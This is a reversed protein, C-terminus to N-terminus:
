AHHCSSTTVAPARRWRPYANTVAVKVLPALTRSSAPMASEHTVQSSRDASADLTCWGQPVSGSAIGLGALPLPISAFVFPISANCLSGHPHCGEPTPTGDRAFAIGLGALPLPISAFVFPISANCLSGHPHCGESTPTGDRELVFLFCTAIFHKKINCFMNSTATIRGFQAIKTRYFLMSCCLKGGVPQRRLTLHLRISTLKKDLEVLTLCIASAM